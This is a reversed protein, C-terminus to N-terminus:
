DIELVHVALTNTVGTFSGGGSTLHARQDLLEAVVVVALAAFCVPRCCKGNECYSTLLWIPPEADVSVFFGTAPIRTQRGPFHVATTYTM